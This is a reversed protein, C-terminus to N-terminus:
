QKQLLAMLFFPGEACVNADSTAHHASVDSVAVSDGGGPSSHTL